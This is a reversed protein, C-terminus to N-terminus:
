ARTGIAFIKVLLLGAIFGGVHAAYAVGGGHTGNLYGEVIQFLIWLGVAVFAPVTTMVFNFMIARVQKNPFLLLYGGLIGSIAGSAGLTPIVSSTDTAIYAATALFGCILYFIAYRIHGLRNEVNDGFIFLFLMNGFIHMFGGHMFISSLFTLYIFPTQYLEIQGAIKGFSDKVDIVGVLDIGTTIEQPVLSFGNTFVDNYGLRQLFVFVLINLAIIAYNVYPTTRIESNDDGIPFM